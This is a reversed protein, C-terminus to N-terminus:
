QLIDKDDNLVKFQPFDFNKTTEPDGLYKTGCQRKPTNYGKVCIRKLDEVPIISPKGLERSEAHDKIMSFNM